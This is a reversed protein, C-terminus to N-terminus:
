LGMVARLVLTADVSDVSGDGNVDARILQEATLRDLDMTHRLILLADTTTLEGDGDVDGPIFNRIYAVDDVYGCDDYSGVYPDKAFEWRFTYTGAASATYTLTEWDTEGSLSDGFQTNNVYFKLFDYDDESSARWRFTLMEGAEMTLVLQMVSTSNNVKYNGSRAVPVGNIICTEWPYDSSTTFGLTGGAINAAENLTPTSLVTVACTVVGIESGNERVIASVNATGESVGTIKVRRNNGVITAVSTNDSSWELEYLGANDPIANFRVLESFGTYVTLATESLSWSELSIPETPYMMWDCLVDQADDPNSPFPDVPSMLIPYADGYPDPIGHTEKMIEIAEAVTAGEKMENWFTTEYEYDGAFTVSQSYGYVAACGAALLATGTTGLGARKMGECIAMWVFTNTITGSVHNQIYRGDIGWFSGGNYAWGNTYDNTTLGNSTHLDLYSTRNSSICNGHSDYIIIAKNTYNAAVAPGTANNGELKTLTGGTYAALSAAELRYQDTFNGDYGYYPGVLLIDVAGPSNKVGNIKDVAEVAASADFSNSQRAPAKDYNRVRYNYGGLMGDTTFTFENDNLDTISGKDILPCNLAAKYVALTVEARNAGLAMMEAEVPDLVAWVNDWRKMGRAENAEYAIGEALAACPILALAMLACLAISIIKKINMKRNGKM